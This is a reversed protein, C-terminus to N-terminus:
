EVIEEASRIKDVIGQGAEAVDIAHLKFECVDLNVKGGVLEAVKKIQEGNGHCKIMGYVDGQTENYLVMFYKGASYNERIKELIFPIDSPNSRSQVFDDLFIPAWVLQIDEEWNLRAMVRGWLKLLHFPQTKYLYRIIKQQDAGKTM